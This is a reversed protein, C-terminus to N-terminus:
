WFGLPGMHVVIRSKSGFANRWHQQSRHSRSTSHLSQEEPVYMCAYM